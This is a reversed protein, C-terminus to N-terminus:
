AFTDLPSCDVDTTETEVFQCQVALFDTIGLKGRQPAVIVFRHEVVRVIDGRKERRGRSKEVNTNKQTVSEVVFLALAICLHLNSETRRCQQESQMHFVYVTRGVLHNAIM